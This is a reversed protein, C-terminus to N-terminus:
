KCCKGKHLKLENACLRLTKSYAYLTDVDRYQYDGTFNRETLEKAEKDYEDALKLWRETIKKM